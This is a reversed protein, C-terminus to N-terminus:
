LDKESGDHSRSEDIQKQIFRLLYFIAESESKVILRLALMRELTEKTLPYRREWLVMDVGEPSITEFREMVLNYLDELDLRDFLFAKLHQEEKLDYDTKQRKSKKTAKMKLIRGPRKRISEEDGEQKVEVKTSNPEELVNEKDVADDSDIPKFDDIVGKQREYLGQIKSFINAKLQSHKYSGMNKLYTMMLNRLQSKTPPRSRIEVSRQAARFRRQANITKALFKAREKITCEEREEQQLKAVFLADAKIREQVKDNMEAITAKSAEEERQRKEKGKGVVGKEKAKDEKMKILTQAMTIDVDDFISITTTLPAILDATGVDPRVTSDEPRAISVLEETTGGKKGNGKDQAIEVTDTTLKLEETEKSIRGENMPEKTDIYDMGHDADLNVDLGNFTSNKPKCKKELKKIKSKLAIIKAAQADKITELALVRNSLNNCICFLEELNLAGEAIDSTYGSSLPSNHPLQVQDGKSINNGELAERSDQTTDYSSSSKTMPPQRGCFNAAAVYEAEGITSKRDLNAGAYDSDAYAELDFSSVRPYWIGLKPKGKLYRFISKVAQLHSTEPTVQFRSCTCVAFMIDSRFATFYMLSGIMSRYLHVDVDAVEEDKTLPKQTEIPTSATKVSMFDFKKLIEAFYKDQSIFIGDEKQKVLMIDKKDKKIFLTKDITGRRYRNKLLLTSLTAYWARPAQLLGYLAKVIKYVKKPFKPHIFGLPQTMYVEEDLTGYLFASKVDMEDYDIGEEQRHGQAVLRAKNRVLVGRKDKKNRYVWRTRIAKKGFPLDVLILVLEQLAATCVLTSVTNVTNTNSARAAGENKPKSSKITSIYSSWLPLVWYEQTPEAEKKSYCTDINDQTGASHAEKQRTIKNGQNELRVPKFAKSNLYYGVLFGEDFKGHFKGLHDITNLITVHCGFPQLDKVFCVDKFDLKGTRIKGKSIIHGKSGGFAVPGGNYDQYDVLYAKNGTM